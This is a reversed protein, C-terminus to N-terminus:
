RIWTINYIRGGHKSCIRKSTKRFARGTKKKRKPCDFSDNVMDCLTFVGINFERLHAMASDSIRLNLNQYKCDEEESMIRATM